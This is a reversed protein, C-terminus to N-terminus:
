SALLGNPGARVRRCAGWRGVIPLFLDRERWGFGINNGYGDYLYVSGYLPSNSVQEVCISAIRSYRSGIGESETSGSGLHLAVGLVELEDELESITSEQLVDSTGPCLFVLNPTEGVDRWNVQMRVLASIVAADILRDQALLKWLILHASALLVLLVLAIRFATKLRTSSAITM